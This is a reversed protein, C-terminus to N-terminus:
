DRKAIALLKGKLRLQQDIVVRYEQIDTTVHKFTLFTGNALM